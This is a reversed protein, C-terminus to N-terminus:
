QKVVETIVNIHVEMAMAFLLTSLPYGQRISCSIPFPTTFRGNLLVSLTAGVTNSRIYIIFWPGFSFTELTAFLFEWELSDFAKKTDLNMFVFNDITSKAKHISKTMLLLAHHITWGLIFTSQYPSILDM